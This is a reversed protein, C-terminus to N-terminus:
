LYIGYEVESHVRFDLCMLYSPYEILHRWQQPFQMRHRLYIRYRRLIVVMTNVMSGAM